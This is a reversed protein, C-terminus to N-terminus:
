AAAGKRTEVWASVARLSWRVARGFRVPAPFKQARVLEYITTKSLGTLRVVSLAAPDPERLKLMLDAGAGAPIDTRTEAM